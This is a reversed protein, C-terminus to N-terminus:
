AERSTMGAGEERPLENRHHRGLWSEGGGQAEIM